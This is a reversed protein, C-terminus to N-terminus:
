IRGHKSQLSCFNCCLVVYHFKRLYLDSLNSGVLATLLRNQFLSMNTIYVNCLHIFRVEHQDHEANENVNVERFVTCIKNFKCLFSPIIICIDLVLCCFVICNSYFVSLVSFGPMSRTCASASM